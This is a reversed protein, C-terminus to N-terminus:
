LNHDSSDSSLEVLTMQSPNELCYSSLHASVRSSRLSSFKLDSLDTVFRYVIGQAFWHAIMELSM